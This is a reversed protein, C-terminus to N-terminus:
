KTYKNYMYTSDHFHVWEKGWTFSNMWHREDLNLIGILNNAVILIINAIFLQFKMNIEIEKEYMKWEDNKM